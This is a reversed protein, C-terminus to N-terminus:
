SKNIVDALEDLIAEKSRLGNIEKIVKGEKFLKLNPVSMVAYEQAVNMNEGEDIQLKAIKVKEALDKDGALEEIIPAMMLCPQCWSAWFEVLVPMKSDKVETQFNNVNLEIAM